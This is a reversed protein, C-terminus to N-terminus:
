WCTVKNTPKSDYPVKKYKLQEIKEVFLKKNNFTYILKDNM